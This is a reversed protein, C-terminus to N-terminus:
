FVNKRNYFFSGTFNWLWEVHSYAKGQKIETVRSQTCGVENAIEWQKLKGEALLEIVL